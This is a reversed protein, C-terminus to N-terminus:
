FEPLEKSPYMRVYNGQEDILYKQFNWKVTTSEVGNNEKLTLWQYIPAMEKGVVTIKQAMPFTVGYNKKCFSAIEESSGPEQAGFDNAPFGIIVISDKHKEYMAELAEYQPTYGCKSAVNVILIKKGKFRSFDIDEGTLGPVKFDYISKPIGNEPPQPAGAFLLSAISVLFKIM